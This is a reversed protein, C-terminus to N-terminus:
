ESLSPFFSMDVSSFYCLFFSSVFLSPSIFFPLTSPSLVFVFIICSPSRCLLFFINPIFLIYGFCVIFCKSMAHDRERIGGREKKKKCTDQLDNHRLMIMYSQAVQYTMSTTDVLRIQMSGHRPDIIDSFPLVEITGGKLSVICNSGGEMLVRTAAFGLDRTLSIDSANPDASRCENGINRSVVTM